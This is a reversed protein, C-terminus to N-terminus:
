RAGGWPAPWRSDPSKMLRKSAMRAYSRNTGDQVPKPLGSYPETISTSWALANPPPTPGSLTTSCRGSLYGHVPGRHRHSGLGEGPAGSTRCASRDEVRGNPGVRDRVAAGNETIYYAPFGYEFHVQRLMEVMGPPYVEWGMETVEDSPFVTRPSNEADDLSNSRAINRFYYNLGLFDLPTAIKELDGPQVFRMADGYALRMDEPYGRGSLPDLFWRNIVGGAAYVHASRLALLLKASWVEPIFKSIAM